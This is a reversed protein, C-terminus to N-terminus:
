NNVMIEFVIRDSGEDTSIDFVLQWEGAMNFKLGEVLYQGDGLHETVQPQTPLGHGHAAMGGGVVIRAPSIAQNSEADKITLKWSLFESIGIDSAALEAVFNGQESEQRWTKQDEAVSTNVACMLFLLVGLGFISAKIPHLIM